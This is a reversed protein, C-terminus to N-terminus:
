TAPKSAPKRKRPFELYPRAAKLRTKSANSLTIGYQSLQEFVYGGDLTEPDYYVSYYLASVGWFDGVLLDMTTCCFRLVDGSLSQQSPVTLHVVQNRLKGFDLFATPDPMRYGTAAWLLEPLESYQVTKGRVLLHEITLTGGAATASKPLEDFILLPHEQAIRAKVVLEAGHAAHTVALAHAFPAYMESFTADYIARGLLHLGFDKMHGAINRTAPHM